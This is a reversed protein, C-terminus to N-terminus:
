LIIVLCFLACLCWWTGRHYRTTNSLASKKVKLLHPRNHVGILSGNGIEHRLTMRNQHLLNFFSNFITIWILTDFYIKSRFIFIIQRLLNLLSLINGLIVNEGM